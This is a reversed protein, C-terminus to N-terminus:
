TYIVAVILAFLGIAVGLLGLARRRPNGPLDVELGMAMGAIAILGVLPRWTGAAALALAALAGITILVMGLIRRDRRMLGGGVCFSMAPAVVSLDSALSM